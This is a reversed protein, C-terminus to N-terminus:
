AQPTDAAGLAEAAALTVRLCAAGVEPGFRRQADAAPARGTAWNTVTCLSAYPLGLEAALWVEPSLTMGVVAAGAEALARIEAPSELRPGESCAYTGWAHVNHGQERAAAILARRGPEWFVPAPTGPLADTARRWGAQPVGEQPAGAQRGAAERARGAPDPLAFSASRARTQDILDSPVLLDGVALLPDIAGCGNWSLIAEAGLSRAAWLNARQNVFAATRALAGQGHRSCFLVAAGGATVLGSFTAPGYPTALEFPEGARAYAALELTYAATGGFICLRTM